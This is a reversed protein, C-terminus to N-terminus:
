RRKYQHTVGPRIVQHAADPAAVYISRIRSRIAIDNQIVRPVWRDQSINYRSGITISLDFPENFYYLQESTGDVFNITELGLVGDAHPQLAPSPTTPDDFIALVPDGTAPDIVTPAAPVIRFINVHLGLLWSLRVNEPQALFATGLGTNMVTPLANLAMDRSLRSYETTGADGGPAPGADYGTGNDPLIRYEAAVAPQNRVSEPLLLPDVGDNLYEALNVLYLRREDPDPDHIIAWGRFALRCASGGAINIVQLDGLLVVPTSLLPNSAPPDLFEGNPVGPALVDAPLVLCIGDTAMITDITLNMAAQLDNQVEVTANTRAFLTLTSFILSAVGSAVITAIMVAVVVEVLTYGKNNKIMKENM